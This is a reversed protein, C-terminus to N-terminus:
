GLLGMAQVMDRESRLEDLTALIKAAAFADHQLGAVVKCKGAVTRCPFSFVLGDDVGYEGSSVKAVSYNDGVTEHYLNYVSSIIANAASFASSQGRAKIVAAGRQQVTPIFDNAVWSQDQIVDMAPRGSITANYIDPFQTASHNGWIIMNNIENVHVGAKQALQFRARKEDLMTMAYFRERPVDPANHYAILANTNCPNGVVLARVDAAAHKNIARGQVTFVGGNVKLLDSREMGQKRPVAGVLLAWNVGNMGSDLLDTINVSRLLPYAGDDIEMAVGTLADMAHPLEILNLEIDVDPGFMQGSLIGPLLAYGIQGAAGTVAVRVCKRSM